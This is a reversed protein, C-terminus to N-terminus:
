FRMGFDNKMPVKKAYSFCVRNIYKRLGSFATEISTSPFKKGKPHTELLFMTSSIEM